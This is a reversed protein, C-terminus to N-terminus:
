VADRGQVARDQERALQVKGCNVLQFIRRRVLTEFFYLCPCVPGEKGFLLACAKQTM